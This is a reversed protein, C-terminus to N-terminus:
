SWPSSFTSNFQRGCLVARIQKPQDCSKPLRRGTLPQDHNNSCDAWEFLGRMRARITEFKPAAGKPQLPATKASYWSYLLLINIVIHYYAITACTKRWFAMNTNALPTDQVRDQRTQKEPRCRLIGTGCSQATGTM